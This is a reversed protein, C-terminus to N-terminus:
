RSKHGMLLPSRGPTMYKRVAEENLEVGLGPTEPVQLFGNEVVPTNIVIDTEINKTSFQGAMMLIGNAIGAPYKALNSTSAAFHAQAAAGIGFGPQEAQRAFLGATEMMHVAQKGKFFGGSRDVKFNFWDAAETRIVRLIQPLTFAAECAGIPVSVSRRVYAMGELDKQSVPAELLIPSLEEIRNAMQIAEKPLYASNADVIMPIDPGIAKRIAEVRKVDEALDLGVKTKILRFGAKVCEKAYEAGKQRTDIGVVYGLPIKKTFAGGLIQYVPVGLTKGIIDHLAFDVASKAVTNGYVVKDMKQHILELNFPNEGELVKPFLHNAIIGMVTEQSEGLYAPGLTNAEGLGSVGEDTYLKIVIDDERKGVTGFSVKSVRRFSFTLPIIEAGVIKM